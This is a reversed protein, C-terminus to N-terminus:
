ATAAQILTPANSQLYIATANVQQQWLRLRERLRAMQAVDLVKPQVWTIKVNQEVKVHVRALIDDGLM